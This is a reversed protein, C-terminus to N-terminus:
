FSLLTGLAVTEGLVQLTAMILFCDRDPPSHLISFLVSFASILSTVSYLGM